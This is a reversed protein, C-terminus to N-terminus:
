TMSVDANCVCTLIPHEEHLGLIVEGGDIVRESERPTSSHSHIHLTHTDRREGERERSEIRGDEVRCPQAAHCPSIFVPLFSFPFSPGPSPAPFDLARVCACVCARRSMCAGSSAFHLYSSAIDSVDRKQPSPPLLPSNKQCPPFSPPFNTIQWSATYWVSSACVCVHVM